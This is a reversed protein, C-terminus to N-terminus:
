DVYLGYWWLWECEGAVFTVEIVAIRFLVRAVFLSALVALVSRVCRRVPGGYLQCLSLCRRASIPLRIRATTQALLFHDEYPCCNRYRLLSAKRMCVLRRRGHMRSHLDVYTWATPLGWTSRALGKSIAIRSVKPTFASTSEVVYM